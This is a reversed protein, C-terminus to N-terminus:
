EPPETAILREVFKTLENQRNTESERDDRCLDIAKQIVREKQSLQKSNRGVVSM